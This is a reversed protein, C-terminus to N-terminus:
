IVSKGALYVGVQCCGGVVVITVRGNVGLALGTVGLVFVNILSNFLVLVLVFNHLFLNVKRQAKHDIM